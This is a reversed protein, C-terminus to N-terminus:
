LFKNVISNPMIKMMYYMIKSMGMKIGIFPISKIAIPPRYSKYISVVSEDRTYRKLKGYGNRINKRSFELLLQVYSFIVTGEWLEHLNIGIKQAKDDLILKENIIKLKNEMMLEPNNNSTANAGTDRNNLHYLCEDLYGISNECLLYENMFITDEGLTLEKKFRIKNKKVTGTDLMIRWLATHEKGERLSKNGLIWENVDKISHGIFHSILEKKEANGIYVSRLYSKHPEGNIGNIRNSYGYM